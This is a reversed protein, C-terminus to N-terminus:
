SYGVDGANETWEVREEKDWIADLIRDTDEVTRKGVEERVWRPASVLPKKDLGRYAM